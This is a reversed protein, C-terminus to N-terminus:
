MIRFSHYLKNFLKHWELEEIIQSKLTYVFFPIFISFAHLTHQWAPQYNQFEPITSIQNM